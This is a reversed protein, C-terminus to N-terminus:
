NRLYLKCRISQTYTNVIFNLLPPSIVRNSTETASFHSADVGEAKSRKVCFAVCRSAAFSLHTTEGRRAEGRALAAFCLCDSSSKKAEPEPERNGGRTRVEWLRACKWARRRSQEARSVTSHNGASVPMVCAPLLIERERELRPQRTWWAPVVKHHRPCGRRDSLKRQERDDGPRPGPPRDM